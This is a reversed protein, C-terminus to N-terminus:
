HSWPCRCRCGPACLPSPVGLPGRRGRSCHRHTYRRDHQAVNIRRLSFITYRLIKSVRRMERRSWANNLCKTRRSRRNTLGHAWTDATHPPTASSAKVQETGLRDPHRHVVDALHHLHSARPPGILTGLRRQNGIGRVVRIRTSLSQTHGHAQCTFKMPAALMILAKRGCRLFHPGPVRMTLVDDM